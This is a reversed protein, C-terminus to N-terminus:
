ASKEDSNHAHVAARYGFTHALGLTTGGGWYAAVSPSAVCNGAGYLGAVPKDEWTLIQADPNIVPGGSTDFTGVSIIAAYYPGSESIPYMSVNPQDDSPYPELSSAMTPIERDYAFSGRQWDLDEGTSAYENFKAVEELFNETFSESVTVGGTHASLSAMREAMNTALEELTEGTIVYPAGAPDQPYPFSGGWNQQAREDWVMFTLRTSWDANNADWNFHSKPRDTYNRKENVYRHGNKDVQIFSDGNIYPICNYAASSAVAQEFISEQRWAEHLNGLKAGVASSIRIFDGENTPAGCGGYHPANM